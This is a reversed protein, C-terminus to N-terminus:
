GKELATKVAMMERNTDVWSPPYGLAEFGVSWVIPASYQDVLDFMIWHWNFPVDDPDSSVEGPRILGFFDWLSM